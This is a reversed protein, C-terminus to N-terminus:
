KAFVELVSSALVGFSFEIALSLWCGTSSICELLCTWVNDTLFNEHRKEFKYKLFGFKNESNQHLTCQWIYLAGAHMQEWTLHSKCCLFLLEEALDPTEHCLFLFFFDCYGCNLFLEARRQCFLYQVISGVSIVFQSEKIWYLHWVGCTVKVHKTKHIFLCSYSIM